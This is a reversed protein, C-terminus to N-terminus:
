VTSHIRSFLEDILISAYCGSELDFQILLDDGDWRQRFQHIEMWLKRRRGYLRKRKYISLYQPDIQHRTM